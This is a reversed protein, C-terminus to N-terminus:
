LPVKELEPPAKLEFDLVRGYKAVERLLAPDRALAQRARITRGAMGDNPSFDGPQVFNIASARQAPDELAMILADRADNPRDLCLMLDAIMVRRSPGIIDRAKLAEETEGLKQLICARHLAMAALAGAGVEERRRLAEVITRDIEQRAADAKGARFLYVARNGSLNLANTEGGLPWIALMRQYLAEIDDWRDARALAAAISPVLFILGDDDKPDIKRQTLPLLDRLIADYHGADLLADGYDKAADANNSARWRGEAARLYPQWLRGLQPGAWREIDPWLAEYRRDSLMTYLKGPVAVTEVLARAGAVDGADMRGEIVATALTARQALDDSMWGIELLKESLRALRRRDNADSLRSMLNSVSYDDVQLAADPNIEILRVLYDAAPGPRDSFSYLMFALALPAGYGPLLRVSEDIAARAAPQQAKDSLCGARAYQILGRPRGPSPTLALAKDLPALTCPPQVGEGMLTAIQSAADGSELLVDYPPLDSFFGPVPQAGVPQGALLLLALGYKQM